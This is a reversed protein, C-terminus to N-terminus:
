SKGKRAQDVAQREEKSLTYASSGRTVPKVYVRTGERGHLSLIVVGTDQNNLLSLAFSRDGGTDTYPSFRVLGIKQIHRQARSSLLAVDEEVQRIHEDVHSQRALLRDLIGQLDHTGTNKLLNKYHRITKFLWLSLFGNWILLVAILLILLNGLGGLLM